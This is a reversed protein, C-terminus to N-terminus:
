GQRNAQALFHGLVESARDLQASDECSAACRTRRTEIQRLAREARERKGARLDLLAVGLTSGVHHPNLDLSAQFSRSADAYDGLNAAAIGILYRGESTTRAQRNTEVEKRAARYEGKALQARAVALSDSKGPPLIPVAQHYRYYESPPPTVEIGSTQAAAPTVSALLGAASLAFLRLYLRTM